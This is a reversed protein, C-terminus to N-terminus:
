KPEEQPMRMEEMVLLQMAVAMFALDSQKMTSWDFDTSEDTWQIYVCVRKIHGAKAKELTRALVLEPTIDTGPLHALKRARRWPDIDSM